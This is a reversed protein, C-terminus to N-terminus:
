RAAAPAYYGVLGHRAVMNAQDHWALIRVAIARVGAQCDDRYSEAADWTIYRDGTMEQMHEALALSDMGLIDLLEGAALLEPTLVYGPEMPDLDPLDGFLDAAGDWCLHSAVTRALVEGATDGGHILHLAEVVVDVRDDTLVTTM